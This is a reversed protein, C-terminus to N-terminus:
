SCLEEVKKTKRDIRFTEFHESKMEWLKVHDHDKLWTETFGYVTSRGLDNLLTEIQTRKQTLSQCNINVYKLKTKNKSFTECVFKYIRCPGPNQEIDGARNLLVRHDWHHPKTNPLQHSVHHSWEHKLGDTNEQPMFNLTPTAISITIQLILLKIMM